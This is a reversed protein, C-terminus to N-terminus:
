TRSRTRARDLRARERQRVLDEGRVLQARWTGYLDGRAQLVSLSRVVSPELRSPSGDKLPTGPLPLFSHNHIRAGLSVLKEALRVSEARDEAREEPLGFLFDVDPRFGHRVAVRVAREVSAADHGRHTARLVADSGSQGGIVLSRNDAFRLVLELVEDTVHEPRVESPFTGFFVEADPGIGERVSRLLKEIADLNVSEDESGYSFATPSVFRVYKGGSARLVDVHARVNEVSRHRFRAKFLFPTQCFSCAYICGRTIEIPNMQRHRVNFAPFADLERREGPGSSVFRGGQLHAIGRVVRPDRGERLASFFEVVTTEGEGQAVLDFGAALTQEPEASAHSGGALHLVDVDSTEARVAALEATMEAFDTSYFSWGCVAKAGRASAARIAAVLEARSKAFVVETGATRPDVDLAATLVNLAAVGTRRHNVVFVPATAQM